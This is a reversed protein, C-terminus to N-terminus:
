KKLFADRGAKIYKEAEEKGDVGTLKSKYGFFEKVLKREGEPVDEWEKVGLITADVAVVKDDGDERRLLAIPRINIEQGIGAANKSFVIVDIEDREKENITEPLYGYHVPMIGNNVPIVNKIPGLDIFGSKDYKIHRRRDDGKPIEIVAKM